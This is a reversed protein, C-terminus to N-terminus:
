TDELEQWQAPPVRPRLYTDVFHKVDPNLDTFHEPLQQSRKKELKNKMVDDWHRTALQWEIEWKLHQKKLRAIEKKREAPALEAYHDKEQERIKQLRARNQEIEATTRTLALVPLALTLLLLALPMPRVRSM